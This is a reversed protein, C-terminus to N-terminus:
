PIYIDYVDFFDIKIDVVQIYRNVTDIKSVVGTKKIYEGRHYYIVTVMDNVNIERIKRDLEDKADDSMEVKCVVPKEKEAIALEFGRLAAFPMFQKAREERSMKTRDAM